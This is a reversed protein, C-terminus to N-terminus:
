FPIDSDDEIEQLVPKPKRARRNDSNTRTSEANSNVGGASMMFDASSVSIEVYTRETGDRGERKNIQISGEIAIKNGKRLYKGINEALGRWATCNFFDAQYEGNADPYDRRVAVSFRCYTKGSSSEGIEPDRVLNGILIAKNM